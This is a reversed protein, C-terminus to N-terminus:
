GLEGPRLDRRHPGEPPGRHRPRHRPGAVRDPHRGDRRHAPRGDEHDRGQRVSARDTRRGLGAGRAEGRLAEKLPHTRDSGRHLGQVPRGVRRSPLIMTRRDASTSCGNTDVPVRFRAAETVGGTVGRAAAALAPACCTCRARSPGRASARAAAAVAADLRIHSTGSPGSIGVYVLGVPKEQTGGGPGAVGTISLAWDSAWAGGRARPWRSPASPRSRGTARWVRRPGRRAPRGQGRRRLRDRRRPRVGLIGAAGHAARRAGRRHVVRGRRRDPGGRGPGRAVVEDVTAGDRSFLADGLADAIRQELADAAWADAPDSRVDGGARRRPRLHGGHPPGLRRPGPRRDRGGAAVRPRRPHAPDARRAGGARAILAALAPQDALAAGWM